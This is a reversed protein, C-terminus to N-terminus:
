SNVLPLKIFFVVITFLKHKQSMIQSVLLLQIHGKYPSSINLLFSDLSEGSAMPSWVRFPPTFSCCPNCWSLLKSDILKHKNINKEYM